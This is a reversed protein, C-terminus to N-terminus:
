TLFAIYKKGPESSYDCQLRSSVHFFKIVALSGHQSSAWVIGRSLGCLSGQFNLVLLPAQGIGLLNLGAPRSARAKRKNCSCLLAQAIVRWSFPRM